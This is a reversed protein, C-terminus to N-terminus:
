TAAALPLVMAGVVLLAGRLVFRSALTTSLLRATGRLEISDSAILRFFRAALLLLQGGGITVAAGTLWSTHGAGIAAAFLPGLVAATLCFQVVTLPTNWAPRSAVRYI